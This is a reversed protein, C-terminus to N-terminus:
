KRFLFDCFDKGSVRVCEDYLEEPCNGDSTGKANFETLNAGSFNTTTNTGSENKSLNENESPFDVFRFSKVM